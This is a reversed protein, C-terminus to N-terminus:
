ALSVLPLLVTLLNRKIVETIKFNYSVYSKHALLNRQFDPKAIHLFLLLSVASVNIYGDIAFMECVRSATAFASICM